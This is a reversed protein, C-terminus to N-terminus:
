VDNRGWTYCRGEVDLAVCHCSAAIYFFYNLFLPFFLSLKQIYYLLLHPFLFAVFEGCGSAVVRIDVGLFPRLRTPSVLNGEVAGKRSGVVDWCTSGCFLLEGGKKKEEEEEVKQDAETM